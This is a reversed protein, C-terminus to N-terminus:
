DELTPHLIRWLPHRGLRSSPGRLFGTSMEFSDLSEWEEIPRSNRKTLSCKGSKEGVEYKPIEEVNGIRRDLNRDVIRVIPYKWVDPRVFQMDTCKCVQGMSARELQQRDQRVLFGLFEVHGDLFSVLFHAAKPELNAPGVLDIWLPLIDGM